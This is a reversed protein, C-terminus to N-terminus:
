REKLNQTLAKNILINWRDPTAVHFVIQIHIGKIIRFYTSDYDNIKPEPYRTIQSSLYGTDVFWWEDGRDM